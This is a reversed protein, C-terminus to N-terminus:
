KLYRVSDREFYIRPLKIWQMNNRRKAITKVNLLDYDTVNHSISNEGWSGTGLTLSPTMRNYINGIGGLGSPSNVIIRSAKMAVGFERALDMNQTQIAATHGLGGYNLLAECKDFADQQDMAKYVSLVPSLKEGSLLEQKGIANVE